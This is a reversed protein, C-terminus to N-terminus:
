PPRGMTRFLEKEFYHDLLHEVKTLIGDKINSVLETQRSHIRKAYSLLTEIKLVGINHSLPDDDIFETFAEKMLAVITREDEDSLSLARNASYSFFPYHGIHKILSYPRILDPHFALAWGGSFSHDYVSIIQGPAQFTITGGEFEFFNQGYGLRGQPDKKIWISYFNFVLRNSDPEVLCKKGRLDIISILPNKPQPLFFLRNLETVTNVIIPVDKKM